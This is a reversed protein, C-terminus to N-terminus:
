SIPIDKKYDFNSFFFSASELILEKSVNCIINYNKANRYESKLNIKVFIDYLNENLKLAHSIESLDYKFNEYKIVKNYPLNGDISIINKEDGFFNKAHKECFLKFSDKISHRKIAYFYYSLIQDFPNRVITFKFFNDFIKKSIIKKFVSIPTHNVFEIKKERDHIKLSALYNQPGRFKLKKRIKENSSPKIPTIIDKDGCFKSLAVELSTGATKQSKIFIFKNKFSVIM